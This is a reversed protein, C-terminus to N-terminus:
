LGPQACLSSLRHETEPLSYKIRALEATYSDGDSAASITPRRQSVAIWDFPTQCVGWLEFLQWRHRCM